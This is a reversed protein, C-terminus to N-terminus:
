RPLQLERVTVPPLAPTGSRRKGDDTWFPWASSSVYVYRDGTIAGVTPEGEMTPQDLTGLGAIARGGADLTIAVIRAPAAGNRVGILRDGWRKLGDVGRLSAGDPTTVATISDTRLDWRMLGRSWDAVWAVSGDASPAIGQPSRLLPSSVTELTGAGARLRYLQGRLADSVLVDGTSTLALEGPAGTGDGLTWRGMVVGDSLRVRLLEARASDGAAHARMHPTAATTVWLLGRAADLAVGFAGAIGDRPGVIASRASGDRRFAMVTRHHISTVYLTGDRPDVDIGEAFFATDPLLVRARSVVPPSADQAALPAPTFWPAVALSLMAPVLGKPRGPKM